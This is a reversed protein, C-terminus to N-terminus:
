HTFFNIPIFIIFGYKFIVIVRHLQSFYKFFVPTIHPPTSLASCNWVIAIENENIIRVNM